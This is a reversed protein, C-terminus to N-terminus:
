LAIGVDDEHLTFSYIKGDGRMPSRRQRPLSLSLPSSVELTAMSVFVKTSLCKLLPMASILFRPLQPSLSPSPPLFPPLSAPLPSLSPPPPFSPPIFPSPPSSTFPYFPAPYLLPLPLSHSSFPSCVCVLFEVPVIIDYDLVWIYFTIICVVNPESHAVGYWM